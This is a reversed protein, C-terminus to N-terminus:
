KWSCSYIFKQTFGGKLLCCLTTRSLFMTIEFGSLLLQKQSKNITIAIALIVLFQLRKFNFPLDKPILPIGPIFLTEGEGTGKLITAEIVNGLMNKVCLMTGNWLNPPDLNRLLIIPSGVKLLLCYPPLGASDLLNLLEPLFNVVKNADVVTDISKYETVIGPLMDLIQNIIEHIDEIKAALIVRDRLWNLTLYNQSVALYVAHILEAVSLVLNCFYSPLKIKGSSKAALRGEGIELLKNSFIQASEDELLVRMNQKLTIM